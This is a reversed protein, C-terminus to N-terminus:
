SLILDIGKFMAVNETEALSAAGVGCELCHGDAGDRQADTESPAIEFEAINM